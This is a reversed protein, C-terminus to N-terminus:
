TLGSINNVLRSNVLMQKVKREFFDSLDDGESAVFEQAWGILRSVNQPMGCGGFCKCDELTEMIGWMEALQVAIKCIETTMLNKEKRNGTTDAMDKKIILKKDGFLIFNPLVKRKKQIGHRKYIEDPVEAFFNRWSIGENKLFSCRGKKTGCYELAVKRVAERLDTQRTNLKLLFIEMSCDKNCLVVTKVM